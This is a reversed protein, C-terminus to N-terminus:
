LLQSAKNEELDSDVLLGCVEAVQYLGLESAATKITLVEQQTQDTADM